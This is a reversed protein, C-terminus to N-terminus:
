FRYSVGASYSAGYRQYDQVLRTDRGSTAFLPEDTLNYGQLIFELGKLRGKNFKYGVQADVITEAQVLRWVAGRPGFTAIDGDFDSRYRLSIRASFGSTHEYYVTGSAVRESLGPLRNTVTSENVVSSRNLSYSGIFGWGKLHETFKEGAISLTFELGKVYGGSGNTPMTARGLTTAPTSGPAGPQQGNPYNAFDIIQPRNYTYSVLDKYFGAIAWYGKNDKFYNEFSLDISNSRWPELKPNGGNASYASNFPDNSGALNPNYSYTSGARMDVMPQRALQRALSFRIVRNDTLKLNTNFSPVIDWYKHTGRVDTVTSGLAAKGTATQDSHVVQTGFNGSLMMGRIEREFEFKAYALSIKESVSWNNAVYSPNNNPIQNYYNTDYLKVPDYSYMGKIGIFSLDTVGVSEPLAASTAGNPLALFYGEKGGPGLEYEYKDRTNLAAGIEVRKLFGNLKRTTRLTYQGIEDKSYPGKVFGVQGGPVDGGGWGQPSTLHMKTSDTYDLAPTFLAGGATGQLKYTMTDPLGVQNSAFGSYSEFVLDKRDIKSYALDLIVKWGDRNGLELNWGGAFLNNKRRVFDNRVVGYINKFTGETVLGDQVTFGPQLQASSWWLPIEIGRLLQLEKFDSYFLDITSHVNENPKAEIVAMYGDRKLQSTRVFPKAGGLVYPQTSDLNKGVTPYGWANWQEGQGPRDSRTIGVAIGLKGDAFQDIYSLTARTGTNDAGANRSSMNNWEYFANAAVTRKSVSLPRVTQMDVTGSLGQGILSADGSKYLVVARLLEAPYQDYEVSRGASTSVQQRGNLLGTSFDGNMGRIAISQARGNLRQTTVGPLRTLSEAISIDPLKGIDEASIVESIAVEERKKELSAVLSGAFGGQVEYADLVFLDPKKTTDASSDASTESAPAPSPSAAQARLSPAAPALMLGTALGSLAIRRVNTHQPHTHM